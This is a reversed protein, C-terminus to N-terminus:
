SNSLSERVKYRAIPCQSRLTTLFDGRIRSQDLNLELFDPRLLIPAKASPKGAEPAATLSVFGEGTIGKSERLSLKKVRTM